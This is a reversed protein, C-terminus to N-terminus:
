ADVEGDIALIGPTNNKMEYLLVDARRFASYRPETILRSTIGGSFAVPTDFQETTKETLVGNATTLVDQFKLMGASINDELLVVVIFEEGGFRYVKYEGTQYQTKLTALLTDATLQIIENGATHGLTDNLRKFKDIDMVGLAYGSFKEEDVKDENFAKLNYVNTLPDRLLEDTMKNEYRVLRDKLMLAFWVIAVYSLVNVIQESYMASVDRPYFASQLNELAGFGIAIAIYFIRSKGFKQFLVILLILAIWSILVSMWINPIEEWGYATKLYLVNELPKMFAVLSATRWDSFITAILAPIYAMMVLGFANGTLSAILYTYGIYLPLMLRSRFRESVIEDDLTTVFVLTFVTSMVFLMFICYIIFEEVAGAM